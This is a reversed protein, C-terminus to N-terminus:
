RKLRIRWWVIGSFVVSLVALMGMDLLWANSTHAWHSDKPGVPVLARLDITSASAAYGWRSPMVWSLQDLFLRGTVPILGGALVLQLMLSVVLLPMIQENSRAVSSLVMGLIASAVCTAAVTVFLELSSNGLLVPPQSPAGKGILVIATTIASQVIAFACFVTTKAGLYAWTSLGVAQERRFIPREGILDRITLATGMFVAAISLLTLIQAAEDPTDSTADPMRFGAHGPVTLSLAGMIFPLLALFAFYGRDAVVLRMQRRAITSFQRLFHTHAPAGLDGPVEAQPPPLEQKRALFRRNAEDPDAGVKGFIEAWNTTGMAEGIQDPAGLFATKGGPAMLLVQDCVDLHTLSHTVVLVVRGADALQRLMTMVQLDLAPDLGSTPEDLILLSPGTLLELAVSARKRQGGSLKEVRSDAHKTLGLEELVEAVVQERDAKSTDPPLRLEAAYGLAQNVTLQRHVVDDQPVMGIRTRMTAYETHINHGEFTVSGASPTTYGAILRSLTSKGAGSGGIIATLTGPRASLAVKELLKKGNITFDVDRVELGGARTAVEQRRVLTGGAFVLDINGITVVDGESLLATGVRKGNVFTGNISGADRIETGKPTPVMVAHHRSALVDHIVIDNDLERGIRARATAPQAPQTADGDPPGSRGGRQPVAQTEAGPRIIPVATTHLADVSPPPVPGPPRGVSPPRAVPPPQPQPRPPAQAPSQSPLPPPAITPVSVTTLPRLGVPGQHRGVDFSLRPGDPLGLTLSQGDRIDVTSVRRGDAFLGNQTHNDIAIWRGRDFRLLLHARAVVPHAVRVDAHLDSGVVVDRGPAFSAQSRNSRVTLVPQVPSNM